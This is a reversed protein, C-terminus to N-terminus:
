RRGRTRRRRFGWCCCRSRRSPRRRLRRERGSQRGCTRGAAKALGNADGAASRRFAGARFNMRSVLANTSVWPEANWAYGNPTQMGYIPMGLRDMAQVLPLANQVSADSARLASALFEIPTKVKARYVAPSWFEPAAFLTRLVQKTDGGTKLFTAAMKDELSQPPDDSVFRVALKHAIFHATAPSTALMHLM